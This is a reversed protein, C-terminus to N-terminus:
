GARPQRSFDIWHTHLREGTPHQWRGTVLVRHDPDPPTPPPNGPLPRGYRDTFTLGDPRDADGQIDLHGHHHLRHHRHCLSVLNRTDTPGHDLWHVIHHIEGHRRGCGPVRCGGDRDEVLRRTHTPVIRRTRGVDVPRGDRLGVVAGRADCLLQRRLTDPLAPGHHLYTHPHDTHVHFYAVFADRRAVPMVGGLSRRAVEVLADCWTVDTEGAQFLADRAERLASDVLAGDDPELVAHLRYCGSPDFGGTVQTPDRQQLPDVEDTGFQYRRLTRRLQSVTAATAFAAVDADHSAPTHHAVVAVQDVSLEGAELLARTVPLDDRRRAIEVVQRARAPSLGTQWAVWQECSHIGVGVWCEAALAEAVLAVLRAHSANLEGCVEALGAVIEGETM